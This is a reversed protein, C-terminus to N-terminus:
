ESPPTLFLLQDLSGLNVSLHIEAQMGVSFIKEIHRQQKEDWGEMMEYKQSSGLIKM